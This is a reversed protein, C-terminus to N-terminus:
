KKIKLRKKLSEFLLIKGNFILEYCFYFFMIIFILFVIVLLTFEMTLFSVYNIFMTFIILFKKLIYLLLLPLQLSLWFIFHFSFFISSFDGFGIYNSIFDFIFCVFCIIIFPLIFFYSVLLNWLFLDKLKRILIQSPDFAIKQPIFPEVFNLILYYYKFFFISIIDFSVYDLRFEKYIYNYIFNPSYLFMFSIYYSNISSLIYVLINSVFPKAFTNLNLGAYMIYFFSWFVWIFLLSIGGLWMKLMFFSYIVYNKFFYIVYYTSYLTLYYIWYFLINHTTFYGYSLLNLFGFYFFFLITSFSGTLLLLVIPLIYFISHFRYWNQRDCYFSKLSLSRPKFIKLNVFQCWFWILIIKESLLSFLNLLKFIINFRYYKRFIKSFSFYNLTKFIFVLRYYFLKFLLLVVM